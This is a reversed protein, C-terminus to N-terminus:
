RSTKWPRALPKEIGCWEAVEKYTYPMDKHEVVRVREPYNVQMSRYTNYFVNYKNWCDEKNLDNIHLFLEDMSEWVEEWPRECVVLKFEDFVRSEAVYNKPYGSVFKLIPTKEVLVEKQSAALLGSAMRDFLETVGIALINHGFYLGSDLVFDEEEIDTLLKLRQYGRDVYEIDKFKSATDWLCIWGSEYSDGCSNVGQRLADRMWSTGTRPFGTVSVLRM